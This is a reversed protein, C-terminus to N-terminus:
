MQYRKLMEELVTPEQLKPLMAEQGDALMHKILSLIRNQGIEQGIERGQQLGEQLGEEMGIQM